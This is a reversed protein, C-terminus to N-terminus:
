KKCINKLDNTGLVLEGNDFKITCVTQNFLKQCKKSKVKGLDAWGNKTEVNAM